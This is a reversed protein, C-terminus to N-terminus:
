GGQYGEPLEDAMARRFEELDEETWESSSCSPYVTTDAIESNKDRWVETIGNPDVRYAAGEIFDNRRCAVGNLPALIYDRSAVLTLPAKTDPWFTWCSLSQGCKYIFMEQSTKDMWILGVSGFAPYIDKNEIMPGLCESDVEFKGFKAYNNIIGNHGFWTNESEFPHANKDIIRGHTAWRVHGFGRDAYSALEIEPQYRKVFHSPSVAKKFVTLGTGDKYCMGASHPGCNEASLFLQSVLEKEVEGAWGIIACM